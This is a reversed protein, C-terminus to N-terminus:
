KIKRLLICVEDKALLNEFENINYITKVYEMDNFEDYKNIWNVVIGPDEILSYHSCKIDTTFGFILILYGNVNILKCLNLLSKRFDKTLNIVKSSLIIDFKKDEFTEIDNINCYFIDRKTTAAYELWRKGIECGFARFGEYNTNIYEVVRGDSCGCDLFTYSEGGDLYTNYFIEFISCLRASIGTDEIVKKPIHDFTYYKRCYVDFNIDKRKQGDNLLIRPCTHFLEIDIENIINKPTDENLLRLEEFNM